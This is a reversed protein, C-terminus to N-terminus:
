SVSRAVPAVAFVLEIADENFTLVSVRHFYYAYFSDPKLFM